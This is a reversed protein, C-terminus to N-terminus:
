FYLEVTRFFSTGLEDDHIWSISEARELKVLCITQINNEKDILSIKMKESENFM